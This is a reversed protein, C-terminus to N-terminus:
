PIKGVYPFLLQRTDQMLNVIEGFLDTFFQSSINQGLFQIWQVNSNILLLPCVKLPLLEKLINKGGKQFLLLNKGACM